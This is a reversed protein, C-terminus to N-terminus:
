KVWKARLKRCNLLSRRNHKLRKISHLCARWRAPSRAENDWASQVCVSRATHKKTYKWPHLHMCVRFIVWKSHLKGVHVNSHSEDILILNNRAYDTSNRSRMQISLKWLTKRHAHLNPAVCVNEAVCSNASESNWQIGGPTCRFFFPEDSTWSRNENFLNSSIATIKSGTAQATMVPSQHVWSFNWRNKIGETM